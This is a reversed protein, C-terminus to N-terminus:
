ILFECDALAWQCGMSILPFLLPCPPFLSSLITRTENVEVSSYFTVDVSSRGWPIKFSKWQNWIQYGVSCGKLSSQGGPGHMHGQKAKERTCEQIPQGPASSSHMCCSVTFKTKQVPDRTHFSFGYKSIKKVHSKSSNVNEIINLEPFM